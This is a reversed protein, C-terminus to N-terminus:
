FTRRRLIKKLLMLMDNKNIFLFVVLGFVSLIMDQSVSTFAGLIAIVLSALFLPMFERYNIRIKMVDRTQWARVLYMILFGIFTSISTAYLGIWKILSLSIIANVIAGYISTTAAQVTKDGRLYGVGVFSSFAQFVTGLYLFSIYQAASRYSESMVYNIFVKTFPILFLLLSFSFRYYLRFVSTYFQGSNKDKDGVAVDSLSEYFVSFCLQLLSPFKYAIAYIGNSSSGLFFRIIYRDSSSMIWWNLRNPVLPISFKLMEKQISLSREKWDVKYLRKEMIFIFLICISNAIIASQFLANVGMHFIIIQCFNLMLFILTYMVGSVAYLKQNKLGRLLKQLSGLWRGTFLVGIFYYVYKIPFFYNIGLIVASGLLTSIIIFKYVAIIYQKTKDVYRIMWAYAGDSIQLTILPTLLNITPILIDYDGMDSTSIYYTYLPVIIFSLAKTGFNGIAYILTGEILAKGKKESM